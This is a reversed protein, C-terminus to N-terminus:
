SSAGEWSHLALLPGYVAATQTAMRDATFETKFRANLSRASAVAAQPDALALLLAEALAGADAPRALFPHNTGVAEVIGGIDTAVIPLSAAMAELVVLPLGEFHSPLVFLDAAALLDPIDSRNGVVFFNDQLQLGIIKSEIATREPGDGVLLFRTTPYRDVVQVAAEVLVDHAKQATFRAVTLLVQDGAKIGLRARTEVRTQSAPMFTVGNRVITLKNSGQEYHSLRVGESVAIRCDVSLLMARYQAQQVVSTLLYPLHETRVIPLGAAKGRRVLDHGEWDIGAHVHLLCTGSDKLWQTFADLHEPDFQKIRLGRRGATRLFCMGKANDQCAIVIEFTKLLASGLAIMHEGLGSPECSDTALVVLPKM